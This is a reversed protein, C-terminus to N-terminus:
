GGKVTFYFTAGQDPAAEAWVRGGHRALIRQVTALGIGIGDFETQHHLRQFLGFLKTAHKMEFGVGNDRVFYCIEGGHKLSGIEIRAPHRPQTFKVANSILREFVEELQRPDAECDPLPHLSIEVRGPEQNKQLGAVVREVLPNLQLPQKQLSANALRLFGLFEDVMAGMQLAVQNIQRLKQEQTAELRGALEELLLHSYAVIARIPSRLDHGITYSLTELEQNAAELQTTREAVRQELSENLRRIEAEAQIRESIDWFVIQVGVPRGQNDYIPTKFVQVVIRKGGLPQHEEIMEVSKGVAMVHQDDARFKDALETPHLDYDTKGLFDAPTLNEFENCYRENVFTFRGDVDKTCVNMPLVEVLSRYLAESRRKEQLNSQLSETVFRVTIAAGLILLSYTIALNFDAPDPVYPPTIKLKEALIILGVSGLCLVSYLTLGQRDLLLGAFILIVPYLISSAAHISGASLIGAVLCALSAGLFLNTAFRLKKRRILLFISGYGIIGILAASTYTWRQSLAYTLGVAVAVTAVILSVVQLYFAARNKEDDGFDPAALLNKLLKTFPPM